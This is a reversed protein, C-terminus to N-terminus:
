VDLGFECGDHEGILVPRKNLTKPMDNNMIINAVTIVYFEMGTLSPHYNDESINISKLDEPM